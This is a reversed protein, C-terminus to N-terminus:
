EGYKESMREVLDHLPLDLYLHEKIERLDSNLAKRQEVLRKRGTRVYHVDDENKAKRLENLWSVDELNIKFRKDYIKHTIGRLKKAYHASGSLDFASTGALIEFIETFIYSKEGLYKADMEMSFSKVDHELSRQSNNKIQSALTKIEELDSSLEQSECAIMDEKQSIVDLLSKDSIHSVQIHHDVSIKDLLILKDCTKSIVTRLTKYDEYRMTQNSESPAVSALLDSAKKCVERISEESSALNREHGLEIERISRSLNKALQIFESLYDDGPPSYNPKNSLFKDLRDLEREINNAVDCFIERDENLEAIRSLILESVGHYEEKFRDIRSKKNKSSDLSTIRRSIMGTWYHFLYMLEKNMLPSHKSINEETKEILKRLNGIRRRLENQLAADDMDIPFYRVHAVTKERRIKGGEALM